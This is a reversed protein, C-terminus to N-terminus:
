TAMTIDVGFSDTFRQKFSQRLDNNALNPDKLAAIYWAVVEKVKALLKWPDIM